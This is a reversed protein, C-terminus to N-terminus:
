PPQQTPADLGEGPNPGAAVVEFQYGVALGAAFAQGVFPVSGFLLLQTGAPWAPRFAVAATFRLPLGEARSVGARFDFRTEAPSFILDAGLQLGAGDLSGSGMVLLHAPRYQLGLALSGQLNFTQPAPGNPVPEQGPPPPSALSVGVEAAAVLAFAEGLPVGPQFALGLSPGTLRLGADFSFPVSLRIGTHFPLGGRAEFVLADSTEAQGRDTAAAVWGQVAGPRPYLGLTPRVWPSAPTAAEAGLPALALVGGLWGLRRVARAPRCPRRRARGM